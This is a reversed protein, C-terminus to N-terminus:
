PSTSPVVPCSVPPRSPPVAVSLLRSPVRATSPTVSLMLSVVSSVPGVPVDVIQGTRKVTDGEKILRDNGFISVGVNDAELNLCMGRVGSSFEVM